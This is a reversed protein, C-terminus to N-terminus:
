KKELSKEVEAVKARTLELIKRGPLKNKEQNKVWNEVVNETAKSFAAREEKSLTYVKMGASEEYKKQYNEGSKTVHDGLYRTAELGSDILIKQL